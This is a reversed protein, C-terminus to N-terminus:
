AAQDDDDAGLTAAFQRLLESAQSTDMAGTQDLGLYRSRREMIRLCQQVAAVNGARAKPWLGLFMADLRALEMTLVDTAPEKILKAMGAQCAKWAGTKNAYGLQDAIQQFDAGAKRLELAKRQRELTSIAHPSTKQHKKSSRPTVAM